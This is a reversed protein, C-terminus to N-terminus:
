KKCTTAPHQLQYSSDYHVIISRADKTQFQILTLFVSSSNRKIVENHLSTEKLGKSEFLIRTLWKSLLALGFKVRVIYVLLWFHAFSFHRM